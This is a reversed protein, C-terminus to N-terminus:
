IGMESPLSGASPDLSQVRNIDDSPSGLISVSLSAPLASETPYLTCTSTIASSAAFALPRV